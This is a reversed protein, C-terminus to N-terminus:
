IRVGFVCIDDNQEAEGKWEEIVSDLIERQEKMPKGQVSLLLERFPRYKFKKDEDGGFQDAYGDSFIYIADGKEIEIEHNTFPAYDNGVYAGIPRKDSKIKKVQGNHVLYLPNNAGAFQLKQEKVNLACLAMD